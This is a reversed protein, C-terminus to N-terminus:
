PLVFICKGSLAQCCKRATLASSGRNRCLDDETVQSYEEGPTSSCRVRCLYVCTFVPSCLYTSCGGYNVYMYVSSNLRDYMIPFFFLNTLLSSVVVKALCALDLRIWGLRVYLPFVLCTLLLLLFFVKGLCALSFGVCVPFLLYILLCFLLM